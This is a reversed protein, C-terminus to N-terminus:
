RLWHSGRDWPGNSGHINTHCNLCARAVFHNSTRPGKFSEFSTYPEGPHGIADHCSQCLLPPKRSLLKPHNSGHPVHCNLCKEAVPPHEWVFPGRREAHCEYCLENISDSKIMKSDFTGMPNHCQTCFMERERLPHHSQKNAQAQINRHCEFCLDPQIKKLDSKVGHHISHCQECSVDMAKHRSMSWFAVDRSEEHCKLCRSSRTLADKGRFSFIAVGKGGGKQVHEAGPGHCSECEAAAAPSGAVTKRGHIDRVFYHYIDSHCAKCVEAGVYGEASLATAPSILIPLLGCLALVILCYRKKV